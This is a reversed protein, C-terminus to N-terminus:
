GRFVKLVDDVLTAEGHGRQRVERRQLTPHRDKMLAVHDACNADAACSACLLVLLHRFGAGVGDRGFGDGGCALSDAVSWVCNPVSFERQGCRQSTGVVWGAKAAPDLPKEPGAASRENQQKASQVREVPM